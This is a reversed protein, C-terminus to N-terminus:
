RAINLTDSLSDARDEVSARMAELHESAILESICETSGGVYTFRLDVDTAVCWALDNPWWLGLGVRELPPGNFLAGSRVVNLPARLLAYSRLPLALEPVGELTEAVGPTGTWICVCCNTQTTHRELVDVLAAQAESPIRGAIPEEDWPRKVPAEPVPDAITEWQMLRHAIRGSWAAVAQWSVSQSGSDVPGTRYAPHFVRAYSPFGVPIISGVVTIGKPSRRVRPAVWDACDADPAPTVGHALSPQSGDSAFSPDESLRQWSSPSHRKM